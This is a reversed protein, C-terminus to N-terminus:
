PSSPARARPALREVRGESAIVVPCSARESVRRSVSGLLLRGIPGLGRTGVVILDCDREAAAKLIEDAPDGHAVVMESEVGLGRLFRHGTAVDDVAHPPMSSVGGPSPNVSPPPVVSLVIVEGPAAAGPGGGGEQLAIRAAEELAFRSREYGDYAVLIRMPVEERGDVGIKAGRARAPL